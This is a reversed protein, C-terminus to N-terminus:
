GKVNPLRIGLGAREWQIKEKVREETKRRLQWVRFGTEAGYDQVRPSDGGAPAGAYEHGPRTESKKFPFSAIVWLYVIVM